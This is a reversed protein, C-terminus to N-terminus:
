KTGGDLRRKCRLADALSRFALCATGGAALTAMALREGRWDPWAIGEAHTLMASLSGRRMLSEPRAQAPTAAVIIAWACGSADPLTFLRAAGGSPLRLRTSVHTM